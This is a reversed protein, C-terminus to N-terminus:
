KYRKMKEELDCKEDSSQKILSKLEEEVTCKDQNM